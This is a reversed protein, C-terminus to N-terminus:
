LRSLMEARAVEVRKLELNFDLQRAIQKEKMAAVRLRIIEAELRECEQLAQRRSTARDATSLIVFTGTRRAAQLAFVTDIWGQYLTFLTGRPQRGLSLAALFVERHQEDGTDQFEVGVVDGDLVTKGKEGQSWRKHALSLCTFKGQEVVLVLPYPVARHVLEVLRGLKAAERLVLHLMSIELYERAEDRYEAVGITTPKLASVWILQELGDSIRRKDAATPAGHEYLMTKPVRRDVLAAAPLDFAAILQRIESSNRM